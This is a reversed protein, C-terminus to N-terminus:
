STQPRHFKTNTNLGNSILEPLILAESICNRTKTNLLLRQRDKTFLEMVTDLFSKPGTLSNVKQPILLCIDKAKFHTQGYLAAALYPKAEKTVTKLPRQCLKTEACEAVKLSSSLTILKDAKTHIYFALLEM